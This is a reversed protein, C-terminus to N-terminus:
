ENHAKFPANLNDRYVGDVRNVTYELIRADTTIDQEAFIGRGALGEKVSTHPLHSVLELYKHLTPAPACRANISRNLTLDGTHPDTLYGPDCPPGPRLTGGLLLGLRPQEPEIFPGSADRKKARM